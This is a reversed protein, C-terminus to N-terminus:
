RIILPAPIPTLVRSSVTEILTIPNFSHGAGTIEENAEVTLLITIRPQKLEDNEAFAYHPNETPSIYFALHSVNIRLPSIPVFDKSFDLVSADCSEAGFAADNPNLEDTRSRPLEAPLSVGVLPCDTAPSIGTDDIDVALVDNQGRCQFGDACVFTDAVGDNNTDHGQLRLISLAYVPEAETGGIRERALITKQFGDASILYLESQNQQRSPDPAGTTSVCLGRQNNSVFSAGVEYSFTGCFADEEPASSRFKGDFPNKGTNRDVTKRLRTCDRSNRHEDRADGEGIIVSLDATNCDFGLANDTGPNYFSSYYRGYNQGYNEAGLVGIESEPPSDRPSGNFAELIVHQNYYEDYDIMGSRVEDAIHQLLFRADAYIQNQMNARRTERFSQVYLGAVITAAIAFIAVAILIEPLTFACRVTQLKFRAVRLSNKFKSTAIKVNM